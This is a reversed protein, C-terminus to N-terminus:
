WATCQYTNSAIINCEWPWLAFAPKVTMAIKSVSNPVTVKVFGDSTAMECAVMDTSNICLRASEPVHVFQLAIGDDEVFYTSLEVVVPPVFLTYALYTFSMIGLVFGIIIIELGWRQQFKQNNITRNKM